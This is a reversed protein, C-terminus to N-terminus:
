RCTAFVQSLTRFFRCRSPFPALLYPTQKRLYKWSRLKSDANFHQLAKSHTVPIVKNHKYCRKFVPVTSVHDEWLVYGEGLSYLHNAEVPLGTMM